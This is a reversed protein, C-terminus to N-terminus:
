VGMSCYIDTASAEKFVDISEIDDPNIENFGGSIPIGDVVYLPDNGANFSRRGRVRVTMGDGPRNGAHVVDVGAARGQLMQQANTVPVERLAQTSIFIP